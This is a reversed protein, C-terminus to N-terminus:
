CVMYTWNECDEVFVLLLDDYRREECHVGVYWALRAGIGVWKGVRGAATTGWDEVPIFRRGEVCIVIM